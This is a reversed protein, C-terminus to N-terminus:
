SSPEMVAAGIGTRGYGNGNYLLWRREGVDVVHPYAIMEADWNGPTPALPSAADM